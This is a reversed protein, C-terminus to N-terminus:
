SPRARSATEGLTKIASESWVTLRGPHTGPALIESNLNKVKVVSVGMINRAANAIGQDENIVLLPGVGHRKARGRMKGKGARVKLSDGVREVDMWVGLSQLIRRAEQTKSVKQIEDSVVLPLSLKEDFVHGRRSVYDKNATAAIASGIASLREKRNIKKRFIKEPTPPFVARGKVTSPAFAAQGSRAYREGKVRPVRALAHGVGYSEASTRKGAMPDRGQPQVKHSQLALVARKILDPRIEASFVAPLPIEGKPKGELDYVRAKSAKM